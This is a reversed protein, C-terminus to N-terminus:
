PKDEETAPTLVALMPLGRIRGAGLEDFFQTVFPAGPDECQVKVPVFGELAETVAPDRFTTNSMSVCVRCWTAWAYVFLPKGTERAEAVAAALDTRWPIDSTRPGSDSTQLGSDTSQASAVQSKPSPVESKESRAGRVALVAYHAALALLLVGFLREVWRMWAGPRPLRALGAGLLVWPAGCGAGLVFPLAFGLANGEEQLSVAAVLTGLMVPAVCAGALLAFGVGAGFAAALRGGGGLRSGGAPTRKRFRTFDIMPLVGLLSLAFAALLLAAALSFWPSSQLTGVALGSVMCVLGLAGYAAAIGLGYAAGLLAGRRRGAAGAGLVALTVPIMPLVCPSLNLLIGAVFAGLLLALARRPMAPLSTGEGERGVAKGLWRIFRPASLGGMTRASVTFGPFLGTEAADEPEEDPVLRCVNDECVVRMGPVPSSDMQSPSAPPVEKAKRTDDIKVEGLDIMERAKDLRISLTQFTQNARGWDTFITATVTAPGFVAQQHSAFYHARIRYAGIPAKRLLYEEPGYGDTIDTSVDGGSRTRRHGYYAEEGSPETVHLDVDTEDADWAMVVRMDCDPTGRLGEPLPEPSSTIPSLSSTIPSLSSSIHNTCWAYLSNFEEVAILSISDPHRAWPTLAVKRYLDLAEALLAPAEERPSLHSPLPSLNEAFEASEAHSLKEASEAHAKKEASEAHARGAEDLVLALDRWSQADEPRLKCVRRLTAIAPAYAKAEKLRWAMVRLLAADEIRLEALNSLIRVAFATDGKAFFWGACDLYFAPSSAWEARQTLYAAKAEGGAADLAKLYPTDPSWPRVSISGAPSAGAQDSDAKPAVAGAASGTAMAMAPAAEEAMAFDAEAEVMGDAMPAAAFVGERRAGANRATAGVMRRLLGPREGDADDVPEPKPEKQVIKSWDTNWWEMRQKWQSKLMDLHRAARAEPNEGPRNKKATYWEVRMEPLSAPPEIDHRLWQDLSELVLLSTAPSAIGFRRGIALLEDENDDARPSLQQVRMAAWATALTSGPKADAIRLELAAGGGDHDYRLMANANATLRGLVTIRRSADSGIGQVDSFGAGELGRVRRALAYVTEDPSLAPDFVRGGCAQRLSEIDREAGTVLASIDAGPAFELPKGSLTDMGDTFLYVPGKSAAVVPALAALDTGGDYAVDALAAVLAEVSAFERPPEPVNRFVVLRFAGDPAARLARLFAFERSHDGARSGSADWLVTFSPAPAVPAAPPMPVPPKVSACFWIDGDPTRELSVVSDPLVPLAILLDDRPAVNEETGSVRWFREAREFRRDGFGGLTPPEYATNDAVEVTVTRHALTCDLMPLALAASSGDPGLALPAVYDVRVRRTGNAPVPYVRTRYVNGKVAEVLGPDVGRRQETEFAIRAKEKPVVVGDIMAGNIDLAYGCVAAGDPLPFALPASIVRANPNRITITTSVRAHLGDVRADIDLADVTCPKDTSEIPIEIWPVPPAPVRPEAVVSQAAASGAFLAAAVFLPRSLNMAPLLPFKTAAVM